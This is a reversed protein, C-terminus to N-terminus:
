ILQIILKKYNKGNKRNKEYKCILIGIGFFIIIYIKIFSHRCYFLIYRKTIKKNVETRCIPRKLLGTPSLPPRALGGTM